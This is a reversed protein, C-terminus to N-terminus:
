VFVQDFDFLFTDGDAVTREEVTRTDSLRVVEAATAPDNDTDMGIIIDIEGSLGSLDVDGNFTFGDGNANAVLSSADIGDVAAGDVTITFEEVTALVQPAPEVLQSLAFSM